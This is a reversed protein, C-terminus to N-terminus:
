VIKVYSSFIDQYKLHINVSICRKDEHNWQVTYYQWWMTALFGYHIGWKSDDLPEQKWGTNQWDWISPGFALSMVLLVHVSSEINVFLSKSYRTKTNVCTFTEAQAKSLFSQCAPETVCLNQTMHVELDLHWISIQVSFNSKSKRKIGRPNLPTRISIVPILSLM